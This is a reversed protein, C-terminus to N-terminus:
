KLFNIFRQFISNHNTLENLKDQLTLMEKKYDVIKEEIINLCTECDAIINSFKQKEEEIEILKKKLIEYDDLLESLTKPSPYNENVTYTDQSPPVNQSEDEMFVEDAPTYSPNSDEEIPEESSNLPTDLIPNILEEKIDASIPPDETNNFLNIGAVEIKGNINGYIHHIFLNEDTEQSNSYRIIKPDELKYIKNDLSAWSHGFDKSVIEVIQNNQKCFIKLTDSEQILTPSLTNSNKNSLSQTSSWKSKTHSVNIKKKYRLMFNNQEISCWTLHLNDKKDVFIYPHSNDEQLNTLLEGSTWKKSSLNFRSYYLQHNKKYLVKYVLHLNNSSDISIQLPSPYRGHIYNAVTAKHIGHQNWYIHEISSLM